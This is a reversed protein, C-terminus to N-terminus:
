KELKLFLDGIIFGLNFRQMGPFKGPRMHFLQWESIEM